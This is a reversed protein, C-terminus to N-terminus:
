IIKIDTIEDYLYKKGSLTLLGDPARAILTEKVNGDSVTTIMVKIKYVFRNSLFIDNIKKRLTIASVYANTAPNNKLIVDENSASYFVSKNNNIVKASNNVYVSPLKKKKM